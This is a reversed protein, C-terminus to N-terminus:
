TRTATESGIRGSSLAFSAARRVGSVYGVRQCVERAEPGDGDPVTDGRAADVAPLQRERDDLEIGARVHRLVPM